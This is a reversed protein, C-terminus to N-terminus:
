AAESVLPTNIGTVDRDGFLALALQAGTIPKAIIRALGLDHLAQCAPDVPITSLLTVPGEIVEVLRRLTDRDVAERVVGDDILVGTVGGEGVRAIVQDLSSMAEVTGARPLLVTRLMARTIPNGDVVLFAPTGALPVAADSREDALTLPLDVTFRAGQGEVSDVTVDGKMAQALNRCIALGLGTGGFHRTTSTDAQRFSDFIADLKDAPIGVGTDTVVIHYRDGATHIALGIEGAGTFKIANSLLNFVIQRVRAADGRIMRPCEGLDRVFAVGKAAVQDDWLRTSETITAALDFPADEITLNGTEMKAVDLIDDVLARMTIGAGHVIGLRDRMDARLTADALMVQTMGLIGNLPTRIEHSTTALFETKAALAKGLADNTVALDANAGQVRERAKRSTFLAFLLMAMVVFAGGAAGLFVSRQTHARDREFAVNRRLEEQRLQAIKLEQNAFDFRAAMLAANTSRALKTAEDDLRKLTALHALALDNRGTARYIDFATQHAERDLLEAKAFDEGAFRQEILATARPYDRRQYAARAAIAFLWKRYGAVDNRASIAFGDNIARQAGALDGGALRTEAINGLVMVTLLPSDLQRALGIAERYQREADENRNLERLANARNNYLSILLNPDARYVSLAQDYYRLATTYDNASGYLTAIAQLAKSQSREEKLDVFISHASQFDNLAEAVRAFAINIGGSSLLLDAHLKSRPALRAVDSLAKAIIPQASGMDNLRAYAEGRLWEATALMLARQRPASVQGTSREAAAAKEIAAKPDALM